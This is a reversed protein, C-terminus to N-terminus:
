GKHRSTKKPRAGKSNWIAKRIELTKMDRLEGIMDKRFQNCKIHIYPSCVVPNSCAMSIPQKMTLPVM